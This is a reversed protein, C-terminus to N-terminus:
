KGHGTFLKIGKSKVLVPSSGGFSLWRPNVYWSMLLNMQAHAGVRGSHRWYQVTKPHVELLDALEKDRSVNFLSRLRDVASDVLPDSFMTFSPYTDPQLYVPNRGNIVWWPSLNYEMFLSLLWAKPLEGKNQAESLRTKSVGFLGATQELTHLGFQDSIRYLQRKISM